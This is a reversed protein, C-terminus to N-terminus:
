QCFLAKLGKIVFFCFLFVSNREANPTQGASKAKKTEEVQISFSFHMVSNMTVDPAPALDGFTNLLLLYYSYDSM